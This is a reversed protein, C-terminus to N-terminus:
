GLMQFQWYVRGVMEVHLIGDFEARHAGAREFTTLKCGADERPDKDDPLVGDVRLYYSPDVGANVGVRVNQM